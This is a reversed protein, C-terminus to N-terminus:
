PQPIIRLRLTDTYTGEVLPNTNTIPTATVVINAAGPTARTTSGLLENGTATPTTATSGAAITAFGSTGATYNILNEFGAAAASATTMAGNISTLSIDTARNCVVAYTRNTATATIFGTTVLSDWNITDDAPTLTGDISCFGAVTATININQDTAAAPTTAALLFLALITSRRIKM